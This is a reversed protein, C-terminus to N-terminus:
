ARVCRWSAEPVETEQLPEDQYRPREALRDREAAERPEQQGAEFDSTEGVDDHQRRGWESEDIKTDVNMSEERKEFQRQRRHDVGDCGGHLQASVASSSQWAPMWTRSPMRVSRRSDKTSRYSASTAGSTWRAREQPGGTSSSM